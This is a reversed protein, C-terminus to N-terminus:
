QYKGRDPRDKKFCVIVHSCKLDDEAFELLRVFSHYFMLLIEFIYVLNTIDPREQRLTKIANTHFIAIENIKESTLGGM